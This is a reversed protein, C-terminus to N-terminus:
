KKTSTEKIIEKPEENFQVIEPKLGGVEHNNWCVYEDGCCICKKKKAACTSPLFVQQCSTWGTFMNDM